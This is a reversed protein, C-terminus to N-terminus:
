TLIKAILSSGQTDMGLGWCSVLTGKEIEKSFITAKVYEGSYGVASSENCAEVLVQMEKGIFSKYYENQFILGINQVIDSRKKIVREPVKGSMMAATTGKRPSFRFAHLRSPKMRSLTDVTFRFDGDTEGPFGVIIDTSIGIGEVKERLRNVKALFEGVTYGRRMKDLIDDSGSQLPIHLHRSAKEASSFADIFDNDVYKPEISSIRFRFNGPLRDIESVLDKFSIGAEGKWAGICIGALVVEKYGNGILSKIEQIIQLKDRSVSPGRVINVKCYACSNDCGNQVKVFARSHGKFFSIVNRGSKELNSTDKQLGILSALKAKESGKVVVDVEEMFSFAAIDDDTVVGCGTLVVIASSNNKKVSRVFQRTKRDSLSTVTCSNVIIVDADYANTESHGLSLIEERLLQSEYQNVKCGFTKIYFKAKRDMANGSFTEKM